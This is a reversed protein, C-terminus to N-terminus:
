RTPEEDGTSRRRTSARRGEFPEVGLRAPPRRVVRDRGAAKAEYLAVDARCWLAEFDEDDEDLTALGISVTVEPPEDFGTLPLNWAVELLRDATESAEDAGSEPLLIGFEEGGVRGFVDSERLSSSYAATLAELVRDGALHGHADNIAKFRDIDVIMVSVVRGYRRTRALEREAADFFARRNAIGTLPDTWALRRLEQEMAHRATVDRLIVAAGRSKESVDLMPAKRVDFRRGGDATGVDRRVERTRALAATAEGGDEPLWPLLDRLRKGKYASAGGDEESSADGYYASGPPLTADFLRAAQHNLTEVRGDEDTLLVPDHLSEFVTLLANKENTIRRNTARLEGLLDAETRQSWEECFAIEIRDFVRDLFLRFHEVREPHLDHQAILDQYAQRYYKFLGLFMPLSTGRERHRQAELVAFATVPDDAIEEDPTLEPVAGYHEIAAVVSDSLGRVSVRWAEELTSTYRTYDQRRAYDLVRRMLWQEGRRLLRTLQSYAEKPPSGTAADSM